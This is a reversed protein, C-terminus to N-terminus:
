LGTHPGSGGRRRNMRRSFAAVKDQLRAESVLEETVDLLQINPDDPPRPDLAKAYDDDSRPM